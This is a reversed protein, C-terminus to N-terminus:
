AYSCIYLCSFFSVIIKYYRERYTYEDVSIVYISIHYICKFICTYIHAYTYTVCIGIYLCVYMCIRSFINLILKNNQLSIRVSIIIIIIYYTKILNLETEIGLPNPETKDICFDFLFPDM